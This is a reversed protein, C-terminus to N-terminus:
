RRGHISGVAEAACRSVFVRLDRRLQVCRCRTGTLLRAFDKRECRVPVALALSHGRSGTGRGGGRLARSPLLLDDGFSSRPLPSIGHGQWGRAGPPSLPFTRSFHFRRQGVRSVPPPPPPAPPPHGHRPPTRHVNCTLPWVCIRVACPLPGTAAASPTVVATEALSALGRPAPATWM